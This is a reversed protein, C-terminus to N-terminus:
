NRQGVEFVYCSEAAVVHLMRSKAATRLKCDIAVYQPLGHNIWHGGQGYWCSLSEDVCIMDSLSFFNARQNNFNAVLDDVLHWRHQETSKNETRKSPQKSWRMARFLDDFQHKSMGTLGFCPAPRYKMPVVSSWLSARSTFEFSTMLILFGFFKFLGWTYNM